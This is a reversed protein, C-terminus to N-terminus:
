GADPECIKACPQRGHVACAVSAMSSRWGPVRTVISKGITGSSCGAHARCNDARGARQNGIVLRPERGVQGFFERRSPGLQLDGANRCVTRFGQSEDLLMIRVNEEEIYAHRAQSAQLYCSAGRLANMDYEHGRVVLVRELCELM